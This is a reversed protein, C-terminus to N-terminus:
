AIESNALVASAVNMVQEALVPRKAAILSCTATFVNLASQTIEHPTDENCSDFFNKLSEVHIILSKGSQLPITINAEM